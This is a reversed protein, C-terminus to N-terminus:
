PITAEVRQHIAEVFDVDEPRPVLRGDRWRYRVLRQEFRQRAGSGDATPDAPSHELWTAQLEVAWPSAPDGAGRLGSASILLEDPSVGDASLYTYLLVEREEPEGGYVVAVVGNELQSDGWRETCLRAALGEPHRLPACGPEDAAAEETAGLGPRQQPEAVCAGFLAAAAFAMRHAWRPGRGRGPCEMEPRRQSM